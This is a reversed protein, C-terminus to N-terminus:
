CAAFIAAPLSRPPRRRRRCAQMSLNDNIDKQGRNVVAVWGNKLRVSRGDLVERADTGRDMIDLKTLVGAGGCRVPPLHRARCCAVHVGHGPGPAMTSWPRHGMKWLRVGCSAAAALTTQRRQRSNGRRGVSGAGDSLLPPPLLLLTPLQRSWPLPAALGHPSEAM